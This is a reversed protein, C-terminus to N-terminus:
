KVEKLESTGSVKVIKSHGYIEKISKGNKSLFAQEMDATVEVSSGNKAGIGDLDFEMGKPYNPHDVDLKLAM